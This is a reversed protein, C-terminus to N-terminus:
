KIFIKLFTFMAGLQTAWFIFAWLILKSETRAVNTELKAIDEKTAFNKYLEDKLTSIDKHIYEYKKEANVEAEAKVFNVLTEAEKEGLKAKLVNFLQIDSIHLAQAM